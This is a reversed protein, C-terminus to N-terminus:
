SPIKVSVNLTDDVLHGSPIIAKEAYVDNLAVLVM